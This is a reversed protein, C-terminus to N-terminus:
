EVDCLKALLLEEKNFLTIGILIQTSMDTAVPLFLETSKVGTVQM